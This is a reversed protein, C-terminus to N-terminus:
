LCLYAIFINVLVLPTITALNYWLMKRAIGPEFLGFYYPANQRLVRTVTGFGSGLILAFVAQSTNMNGSALERGALALASSVHAISAAAVTMTGTAPCVGELMYACAYVAWSVALSKMIRSLKLGARSIKVSESVIVAKRLKFCVFVFRLISRVLLSLAFVAGATGACSVSLMFTGPWRKLYGPLPLLLVAWVLINEPLNSRALIGAGARSSGLSVVIAASLSSPISKLIIKEALGMRMIVEGLFVGLMIDATLLLEGRLLGNM